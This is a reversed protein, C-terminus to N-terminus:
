TVALFAAVAARDAPNDRFGGDSHAGRTRLFARRGSVADHLRRGQEFPILEDEPSHIVMVPTTLAPMKSLSDYRIRALWRVPLWPYVRAAVDPLATFTNEVILHGSARRTALEIAVAGGLSEGYLVIQAPLIGKDAVLADFAAEADLYTGDESPKGTSRGYGRYDYAMVGFGMAHLVAILGIRDEISGANGHSVLVVQPGGSVYWAHLEVGDRTTLVLDEFDVGKASPDSSPAPGPLWVMRGQVLFLGACTALYGAAVIGILWILM